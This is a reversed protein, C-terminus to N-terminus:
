SVRSVCVREGGLVALGGAVHENRASRRLNRGSAAPLSFASLLVRDGGECKGFHVRYIRLDGDRRSADFAIEKLIGASNLDHVVITGRKTDNTVDVAVELKPSPPNRGRLIDRSLFGWAGCGKPRQSGSQGRHLPASHIRAFWGEKRGKSAQEQDGREDRRAPM